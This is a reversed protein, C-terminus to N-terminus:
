AGGHHYHLAHRILYSLREPEVQATTDFLIARNGDIRDWGPFSQAYSSIIRSQCHAFLAFCAERHPGLRLTAGKPARYAPQGWRLGEELRGIEPVTDAVRYILNRLQLVGERTEPSYHHIVDSVHSPIPPIM